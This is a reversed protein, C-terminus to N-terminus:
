QDSPKSGTKRVAFYLAVAAGIALIAWGAHSPNVVYHMLGETHEPDGHGEHAMVTANASVLFTLAFLRSLMVFFVGLTDLWVTVGASDTQSYNIHLRIGPLFVMRLLIARSWLIGSARSDLFIRTGFTSDTAMKRRLIVSEDKADDASAAQAPPL